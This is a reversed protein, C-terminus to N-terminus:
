TVEARRQQGAARTEWVGGLARVGAGAATGDLGPDRHGGGAACTWVRLGAETLCVLSGAEEGVGRTRLHGDEREGRLSWGRGRHGRGGAGLLEPRALPAGSALGVPDAAAEAAGAVQEGGPVVSAADWSSLAHWWRVEWSGILSLWWCVRAVGTWRGGSWQGRAQELVM